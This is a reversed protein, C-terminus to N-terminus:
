RYIAGPKGRWVRYVVVLYVSVIALGILYVVM